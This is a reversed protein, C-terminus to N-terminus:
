SISFSKKSRQISRIFQRRLKKNKEYTAKIIEVELHAKKKIEDLQKESLKTKILDDFSKTEYKKIRLEKDVAKKINQLTRKKKIAKPKYEVFPESIEIYESDFDLKDQKHAIAEKLAAKLDKAFKSSM